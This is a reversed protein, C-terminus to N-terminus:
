TQLSCHITQWCTVLVLFFWGSRMYPVTIVYDSEIVATLM